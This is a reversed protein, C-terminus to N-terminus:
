SESQGAGDPLRLVATVAPMLVSELMTYKQAVPLSHLAGVGCLSTYGHAASWLTVTHRFLAAEDADPLAERVLQVLLRFPDSDESPHMPQRSVLSRFLDSEEVGFGFYGRGAALLVEAHSADPALWALELCIRRHLATLAVQLIADRLEDQGSFHRYAASASVGARRAVERLVVAEPGGDAALEVGIRVLEARLNGHHYAM